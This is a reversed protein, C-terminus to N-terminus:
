PSNLASIKSICFKEERQARLICIKEEGLASLICLQRQRQLNLAWDEEVATFKCLLYNEFFLSNPTKGAATM